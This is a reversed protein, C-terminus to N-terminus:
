CPVTKWFRWACIYHSSAAYQSNYLIRHLYLVFPFFRLFHLDTHIRWVLILVLWVSKWCASSVCPLYGGATSERIMSLIYIHAQCQGSQLNTQKALKWPGKGWLSHFSLLFIIRHGWSWVCLCCKSSISRFSRPLLNHQLQSVQTRYSAYTFFSIIPAAKGTRGLWFQPFSSQHITANSSLCAQRWDGLRISSSTFIKMCAVLTLKSSNKYSQQYNNVWEVSPFQSKPCPLLHLFSSFILFVQPM